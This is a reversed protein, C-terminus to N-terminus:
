DLKVEGLNKLAKEFKKVTSMKIPDNRVEIRGFSEPSRGRAAAMASALSMSQSSSDAGALAKPAITTPAAKPERLAFVAVGQKDGLFFGATGSIEPSINFPLFLSLPLKLGDVKAISIAAGVLIQQGSIGVYVMSNSNMVPIGIVTMGAPLILPIGSGNPLKTGDGLNPIKLAATANVKVLIHLGNTELEGLTVSPNNPNILPFKM